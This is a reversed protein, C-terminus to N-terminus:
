DEPLLVDRQALRDLGQCAPLHPEAKLTQLPEAAHDLKGIANAILGQGGLIRIREGTALRYQRDRGRMTLARPDRVSDAALKDAPSQEAAM